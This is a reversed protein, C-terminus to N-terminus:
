VWHSSAYIYLTYLVFSATNPRFFLKTPSANRHTLCSTTSMNRRQVNASRVEIMLGSINDVHVCVDIMSWGTLRVRLVSLRELVQDWIYSTSLFTKWEVASLTCLNWEAVASSELVNHVYLLCSFKSYASALVACSRCYPMQHNCQLPWSILVSYMKSWRRLAYRSSRWHLQVPPNFTLFPM